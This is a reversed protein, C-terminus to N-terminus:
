SGVRLLTGNNGVIYGETRSYMFVGNLDENTGSPMNFWQDLDADYRLITGAVGVAWGTNENFFHISNLRSTTPTAMGNCVNNICRQIEGNNGAVWMTFNAPDDEDPVIHSSNLGQEGNFIQVWSGMGARYILGQDAVVYINGLYRSIDNFPAEFPAETADPGDSWGSGLRNYSDGQTGTTGVVYIDERDTMSAGRFSSTSNNISNWVNDDFRLVTGNNGVISGTSSDAFSIDNLNEATPPALSTDPSWVGNYNYINGGDGVVWGDNGSNFYVANLDINNPLGSSESEDSIFFNGRGAGSSTGMATIIDYDASELNVYFLNDQVREFIADNTVGEAIIKAQVEVAGAFVRRRLINNDDLSHRVEVDYSFDATVKDTEALANVFTISGDEYNITYGNSRIVKNVYVVITRDSQWAQGIGQVPEYERPEDGTEEMPKNKQVLGNIRLTNGAPDDTAPSVITRAAALDKRIYRLALRVNKQSLTQNTLTQASNTSTILVKTVVVGILLAISTAVIMEVLTFATSDKFNKRLCKKRAM